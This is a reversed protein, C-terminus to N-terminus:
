PSTPLLMLAVPQQVRVANLKAFGETVSQEIKAILEKTERLKGGWHIRALNTTESAKLTHLFPPLFETEKGAGANFLNSDMQSALEIEDIM